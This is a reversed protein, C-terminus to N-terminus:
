GFQEIDFVHNINTISKQISHISSGLQTLPIAIQLLYSKIAIFDGVHLTGIMVNYGALFLVFTLGIGTVIWQSFYAWFDRYDKRLAAHQRKMLVQKIDSKLFNNNIMGESLHSFMHSDCHNYVKRVPITLQANYVCLAGYSCSIIALGVAYWVGYLSLFIIITAITRICVPLCYLLVDWLLDNYGRQALKLANLFAWHRQQVHQPNNHWACILDESFAHMGYQLPKLITLKELKVNSLTWLLGYLSLQNYLVYPATEARELTMVIAKLVLPMYSQIASNIMICMGTAILYYRAQPHSIYAYKVLHYILKVSSSQHTRVNEYLHM